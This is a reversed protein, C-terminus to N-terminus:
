LGYEFHYCFFDQKSQVSGGGMTASIHRWRHLLYIHVGEWEGHFIGCFDLLIFLVGYRERKFLVWDFLAKFVYVLPGHESYDCRRGRRKM